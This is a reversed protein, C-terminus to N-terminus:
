ILLPYVILTNVKEVFSTSFLVEMKLQQKPGLPTDELSLTNVKEVFSTSFVVEMKLQQKPGLPTDELSSVFARNRHSICKENIIVLREKIMLLCVLLM